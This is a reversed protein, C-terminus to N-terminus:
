EIIIISGCEFEATVEAVDLNKYTECTEGVLEITTDDALRWDTEYDLVTDNLQVTGRTPDTIQGGDVSFKCERTGRIIDNFAAVLQDPDNAVIAAATGTDPDQGLGLRAVRDLHDRSADAGVSLVYVDINKDDHAAQVAAESEARTQAQETDNDPDPITCSDPDGDTALVIIQKENVGPAPFANAVATVSEGTPTDEGGEIVVASPDDPRGQRISALDLLDRLQQDINQYNTPAAEVTVLRPCPPFDDGNYSTYLTAGFSVRSELQAVVGTTPDLLVDRVAEIRNSDGFSRDMSGSYDILLQVTPVIPQTKVDVSPCATADAGPGGDSRTTYECRGSASCQRGASCEDGGPTCDATCVQDDGCYTGSGCETDNSCTQGCAAPPNAGSCANGGNGGGDPSGSGSGGGCGGILFVFMSFLFWRSNKM